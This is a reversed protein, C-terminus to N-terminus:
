ITEILDVIDSDTLYTLAKAKLSEYHELDAQNENKVKQTYNRIEEVMENKIRKKNRASNKFLRKAYEQGHEKLMFDIWFNSFDRDIYTTSASGMVNLKYTVFNFNSIYSELSYDCGHKDVLALDTSGYMGSYDFDELIAKRKEGTKRDYVEYNWDAYGRLKLFNHIDELTFVTKM